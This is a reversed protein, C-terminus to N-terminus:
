CFLVIQIDGHHFTLTISFAMESKFTVFCRFKVKLNNEDVGATFKDWWSWSLKAKALVLVLNEASVDVTCDEPVINCGEEFKLLISYHVPFCGSGMSVFRIHIQKQDDPSFIKVVSDIEINKVHMVLSVTGVDQDYDFDPMTYRINQKEPCNDHPTWIDKDTITKNRKNDDNMVEQNDRLSATIESPASELAESNESSSLVEILPKGQENLSSQGDAGGESIQGVNQIEEFFNQM